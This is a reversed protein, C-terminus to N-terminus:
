VPSRGCAFPRVSPCIGGFTNDGLKATSLLIWTALGYISVKYPAHMGRELNMSHSESYMNCQTPPFGCKPCHVLNSQSKAGNM